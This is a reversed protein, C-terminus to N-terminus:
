SSPPESTYKRSSGGYEMWKDFAIKARDTLIGDLSGKTKGKTGTTTSQSVMLYTSGISTNLINFPSMKYSITLLHKGNHVMM